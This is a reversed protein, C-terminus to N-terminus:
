VWEDLKGEGVCARGMCHWVVYGCVIGFLFFFFIFFACCLINTSYLICLFLCFLYATSVCYVRLVCAICVCYVLLVCAICVCYVRLVCARVCARVFVLTYVFYVCFISSNHWCFLLVGCWIRM